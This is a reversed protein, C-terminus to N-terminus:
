QTPTQNIDAYAKQGRIYDVAFAGCDTISRPLIEPRRVARDSGMLLLLHKPM